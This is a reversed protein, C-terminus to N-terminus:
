ILTLISSVVLCQLLEPQGAFTSVTVGYCHNFSSAYPVDDILSIGRVLTTKGTSVLTSIKCSFGELVIIDGKRVKSLDKSGNPAPNNARIYEELQPKTLASEQSRLVTTSNLICKHIKDVSGADLRCFSVIPRRQSKEDQLKQAALTPLHLLPSM